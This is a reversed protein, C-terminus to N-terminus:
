TLHCQEVPWDFIYKLFIVNEAYNGSCNNQNWFSITLKLNVENCCAKVFNTLTAPPCPTMVDGKKVSRANERERASIPSDAIM